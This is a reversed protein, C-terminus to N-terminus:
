FFHKPCFHRGLAYIICLYHFILFYKMNKVNYEILYKLNTDLYFLSKPCMKFFKCFWRSYTTSVCISFRFQLHVFIAHIRSEQHHIHAILSDSAWPENIITNRRFVIQLQLAVSLTELFRFCCYAPPMIEAPSLSNIPSFISKSYHDFWLFLM